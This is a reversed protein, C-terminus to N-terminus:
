RAPTAPPEVHYRLTNLVTFLASRSAELDRTRCTVVGELMSGSAMRLFVYTWVFQDGQVDFSMRVEFTKWGQCSIPQPITAVIKANKSDKPASALLLDKVSNSWAVDFEPPGPLSSRRLSVRAAAIKPNVFALETSGGASIWQDPKAVSAKFEGRKFFLVPEQAGDGELFGPTVSFNWIDGGGDAKAPTPSPKAAGRQAFCIAPQALLAAALLAPLRFTRPMM